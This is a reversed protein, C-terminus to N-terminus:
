YASAQVKEQNLYAKSRLAVNERIDMHFLQYDLGHYNGEEIFSPFDQEEVWLIGDKCTACTYQTQPADLPPFIANNAKDEGYFKLEFPGSTPVYGKHLNKEARGGDRKWTLPNVCVLKEKSKEKPGPSDENFTAWHILCNTQDPTDCVKISSLQDVAKDTINLIGILYAAVMRDALPTGDIKNQILHLGHYSGQSHSAIIYPRGQNYNKIFYDFSKEVDEYALQLAAKEDAGELNFFSSITAERYRPAYVKCDSFASAQNAMMWKTNEETTSEKEMLSNWTAGKLYGTPHIFFVDISQLSSDATVGNPRYDALDETQALAAWNEIKSYDPSPAQKTEAFSHNPKLFGMMLESPGITLVAIGILLAIALLFLLIKKM